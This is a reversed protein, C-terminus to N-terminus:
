MRESVRRGWQAEADDPHILWVGGSKRAPIAGRAITQRVTADAIGYVEAIESTTMGAVLAATEEDPVIMDDPDGGIETYLDAWEDDSLQPGCAGILVGRVSLDEDLDPWHIGDYSLRYNALQAESAGCLRDYWTLPTGIIRGDLLTVWLNGDKVAVSVPHDKRKPNSQTM